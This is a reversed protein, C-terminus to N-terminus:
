RGEGAASASPDAASLRAERRRALEDAKSVVKADPLGAIEKLVARLQAAVQAVVKSDVGEMDVALKDRLAELSERYTGSKVTESFSQPCNGARPRDAGEVSEGPVPTESDM